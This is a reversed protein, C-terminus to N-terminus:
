SGQLVTDSQEEERLVAKLACIAVELQSEDPERTTMKQLLLGPYILWKVIRPANKKGALKIVEYSIGAVLPLLLIRTLIRMLLTQKGLVSFVVISVVMVVLLFATGCRPHLTDYKKANEVTLSENAEYAFITKHEAGHYEFVRQIDRMRSVAVIYVIFVLIRVLGEVLNMVLASQFVSEAARVLFAPLVIFLLIALGFGVVMTAAIQWSSLQVDEEDAFQNASVTLASIGTVLSEILALVGRILPYGFFRLKSSLSQLRRTEVYIEDNAKRVAIAMSQKGRMMVGEIVAQGGYQFREQSLGRGGLVFRKKTQRTGVSM